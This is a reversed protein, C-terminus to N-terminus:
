ICDFLNTDHLFKILRDEAEPDNCLTDRISTTIDNDIRQGEYIPCQSLIHEVSLPTKCYDCEKRPGLGMFHSHTYRTHGIRLRSLIRQEKQNNRDEWKKITGKIKRTFPKRTQHWTNEWSTNIQTELWKKADQSPLKRDCLNGNTGQNALQDAQENGVIGCHGPIWCFTIHRDKIKIELEQILTHKSNGSELASLASASDSFIVTERIEDPPIMDVAAILATAEATFVSCRSDLRNSITRSSNYVGFGVGNVSRSGDTYIHNHRTYRNAILKNFHAAVKVPNDGAKVHRKIKWDINPKTENWKRDHLRYIKSVEPTTTGAIERLIGDAVTKLWLSGKASKEELNVARKGIALAAKLPFPLNGSEIMVSLVPSSKLHGSARRIFENYVPTAIDTLTTFANGTIEIGYLLKSTIISNGVQVITNRNCNKHRSSITKILRIRSNCNQKTEKFHMKFSGQRDLIVGLIKIKEKNPINNGHLTVPRKWYPHRSECCHLIACKEVSMEYGVSTAWRDVARIAAQLKIRTRAFTPGTTVILIDDAFVLMHAGRLHSQFVGNMAILFLTVSLVSGQPVGNVERFQQSCAGGIAVQFTRNNLFNQLFVPLNGQFGWDRLQKLVGTKWTRNYAKSIDLTAIDIHHGQNRATNLTEGLDAFYAGIGKGKRFAYQRQNLLCQEELAITLRFNVMRETIKAVCSTLSIPRYGDPKNASQGSKPIPIVISNRWEEPFDGTTWQKNITDLLIKKATYPLRKVMLYGIEDPGCSKGRVNDLAKLLENMSFPVNYSEDNARQDIQFPTNTSEIKAKTRQFDISYSETASLTQFYKGIEDAVATPETITSNNTELAIGRHRRKGSIANVRRWMEGTSTQSSIGDLFEEWSKQKSDIILKRTSNKLSRFENMAEERKPDDRSLKQVRRLAKRRAKIATGIEKNWWHVTRNGPIGKTRPISNKAANFILNTFEGMTYEKHSDVHDLIQKEFEDWNADKYLWQIRRTTSPPVDNTTIEIPYHDSGYSDNHISWNIYNIADQSCISIDICSKTNGRHFTYSGDNMVITDTNEVIECVAKGRKDERASGWVPHHANFDGVIVYPPVLQKILKHLENAFNPQEHPVYISVVTIRINNQLKAAVALLPTDIEIETHETSELVALAVSQHLNKGHKVYWCYKGGLWNNLASNSRTHTEQIALCIPENEKILLELDCLNNALGNMNWQLVLRKRNGYQFLHHIDAENNARTEPARDNITNEDIAPNGSITALIEHQHATSAHIYSQSQMRTNDQKYVSVLQSDTTQKSNIAHSTSAQSMPLTGVNVATLPDETNVPVDGIPTLTPPHRIKVTEDYKTSKDNITNQQNTANKSTM